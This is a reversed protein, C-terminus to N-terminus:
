EDAESDSENQVVLTFCNTDVVYLNGVACLSTLKNVRVFEPM